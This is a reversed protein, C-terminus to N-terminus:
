IGLDIFNLQFNTRATDKYQVQLSFSRFMNDNINLNVSGELHHKQSFQSGLPLVFYRLYKSTIVGGFTLISISDQITCFLLLM